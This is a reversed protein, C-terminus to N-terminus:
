GASKQKMEQSISDQWQASVNIFRITDIRINKSIEGVKITIEAEQERIFPFNGLNVWGAETTRGNFPVTYTGGAYKM